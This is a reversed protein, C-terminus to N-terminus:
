NKPAKPDDQNDKPIITVQAEVQASKQSTVWQGAADLLRLPFVRVFARIADTATKNGIAQEADETPHSALWVMAIITELNSFDAVELAAMSICDQATLDRLTLPGLQTTSTIFPNKM